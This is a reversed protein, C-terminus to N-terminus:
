CKALRCLGALNVRQARGHCHLDEDNPRDRGTRPISPRRIVHSIVILVCHMHILPSKEGLIMEAFICGVSWMDIPTSYTRSGLLLEPARYWLTVVEHTYPAIPEGYKRALGFDCVMLVGKNSYLLNSSKLDRHIYWQSHMHEVASLLQIMLTKIESISFSQKSTKMCMKLDNECYEMVMYIKDISSGVVMEKVRVINPHQLALLINIERLATIPFGVKSTEAPTLKVQKLAFIENTQIDKARFVMGYTGQDIFNLRQYHEVSRCGDFIPNHVKLATPIKVETKM